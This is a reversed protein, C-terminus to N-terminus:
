SFDASHFEKHLESIIDHLDSLLGRYEHPKVTSLDRKERLIAIALDGLCDRLVINPMRLANSNQEYFDATPIFEEKM